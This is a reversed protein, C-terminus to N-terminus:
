KEWQQLLIQHSPNLTSHFGFSCQYNNRGRNLNFGVRLIEINPKMGIFFACNPVINAQFVFQSRLQHNIYEFSSSLLQHNGIPIECLFHLRHSHDTFEQYGLNLNFSKQKLNILLGGGLLNLNTYVYHEQKWSIIPGVTCTQNIPLHFFTSLKNRYLHKNGQQEIHIGFSYKQINKQWLLQNHKLKISSFPVESSLFWKQKSDILIGAPHYGKLTFCCVTFFISLLKSM